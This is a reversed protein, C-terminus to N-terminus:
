GNTTSTDEPNRDSQKFGKYDVCPRIEPNKTDLTTKKKVMVISSSYNSVSEEIIGYKLMEDLQREIEAKM